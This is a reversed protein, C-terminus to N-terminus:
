ISYLQELDDNEVNEEIGYIYILDKDKYHNTYCFAKKLSTDISALPILSPSISRLSILAIRNQLYGHTFKETFKRLIVRKYNNDVSCIYITMAAIVAKKTEDNKEISNVAFQKLDFSDCKHKALLLWIQYVQFTYVNYKENLVIEKLTNLFHTTFIEKNVLNLIKCVQTTIWPKDILSKTVQQLSNIFSNDTSYLDINKRGINEITNLAYNLRRTAKRSDNLDENGMNEELLKISLHFAENLITFNESKRYKSIKNIEFDFIDAFSDRTIFGEQMINPNDTITLIATKQSNVSLNCRSLEHEFLQLIYRAEYKDKCLIRIDDMFRYYANTTNNMFTDVQNLYFTALLSSADSNQPLGSEKNTFNLLMNNLLIAAKIENPTTCVRKIKECLLKKNINDYFNLVDIQLACNYIYNGSEDKSLVTELLKYEMKKWQEVGNIILHDKANRSYRASYVNPILAKDLKEALAGVVAIYMIRDIFPSILATRLTYQKKPVYLKEALSAKYKKKYFYDQFQEFLYDQNLLDVYKLPDHFWDDVMDTKLRIRALELDLCVDNIIAQHIDVVSRGVERKYRTSTTDLKIKGISSLKRNIKEFTLSACDITANEFSKNPYRSVIGYLINRENFFIGAGSIGNLANHSPPDIFKLRKKEPDDRKFRFRNLEELNASFISWCFFDNDSDELRDSVLIQPFNLGEKKDIVIIVFDEDFEIIRKSIKNKSIHELEELVGTNEYLINIFNITDIKLPTQSDEQIIHKATLVYNYSCYNPTEYIVGSGSNPVGKIKVEIKVGCRKLNETILAM